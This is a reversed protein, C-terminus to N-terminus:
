RSSQNNLSQGEASLKSLHVDDGVDKTMDKFEGLVAGGFRKM